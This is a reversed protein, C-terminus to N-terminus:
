ALLFWRLTFIWLYTYDSECNSLNSHNAAKILIIKAPESIKYFILPFKMKRNRSIRLFKKGELLQLSSFYNFWFNASIFFFLKKGVTTLNIAFNLNQLVFAIKGYRFWYYPWEALVAVIDDIGFILIFILQFEFKM